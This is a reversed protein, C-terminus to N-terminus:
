TQDLKNINSVKERAEVKILMVPLIMSFVYCLFLETLLGM